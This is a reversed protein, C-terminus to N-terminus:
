RAIGRRSSTQCFESCGRFGMPLGAIRSVRVNASLVWALLERPDVQIPLHPDGFDQLAAFLSRYFDSNRDIPIDDAGAITVHVLRRWGDQLASNRPSFPQTTANYDDGFLVPAYRQSNQASKQNRCAPTYFARKTDTEPSADDAPDLKM